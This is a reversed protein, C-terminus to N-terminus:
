AYPNNKEWSKNIITWLDAKQEQTFNHSDLYARAESKSKYGNKDADIGNKMDAYQRCDSRCGSGSRKRM